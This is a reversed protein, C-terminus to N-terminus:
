LPSIGVGSLAWLVQRGRFLQSSDNFSAFTFSHGRNINVTFLTAFSTLLSISWTKLDFSHSLWLVCSRAWRSGRSHNSLLVTWLINRYILCSHCSIWMYSMLRQQSLKMWVLTIRNKSIHRKKRLNSGVRFALHKHHWVEAITSAVFSFLIYQDVLWWLLIQRWLKVIAVGHWSAELHMCNIGLACGSPLSDPETSARDFNVILIVGHNVLRLDYCGAVENWYSFLRRTPLLHLHGLLGHLDDWCLLRFNATSLPLDLHFPFRAGDLLRGVELNSLM